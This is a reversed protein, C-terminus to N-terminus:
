FLVGAAAKKCIMNYCTDYNLNFTHVQDEIYVAVVINFRSNDMISRNAQTFLDVVRGLQGKKIGVGSYAMPRYDELFEIVDGIQYFVPVKM